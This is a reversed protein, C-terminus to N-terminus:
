FNMPLSLISGLFKSAIRVSSSVRLMDLYMSSTDLMM